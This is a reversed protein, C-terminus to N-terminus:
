SIQKRVLLVLFKRVMHNSNKKGLVEIKNLTKIIEKTMLNIESHTKTEAKSINRTTITDKTKIEDSVNM